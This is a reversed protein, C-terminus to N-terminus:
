TTIRGKKGKSATNSALEAFRRRSAVATRAQLAALASLRLSLAHMAESLDNRPLVGEEKAMSVVWLLRAERACATLGAVVIEDMSGDALTAVLLEDTTVDAAFPDIVGAGNRRHVGRECDDAYMPDCSCARAPSQPRPRRKM